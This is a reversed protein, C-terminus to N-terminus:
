AHDNKAWRHGSLFHRSTWVLGANLALSLLGIFLVYAFMRGPQMAQLESIVAYGLGHPNAIMEAIIAMILSLGMSLRCGTVIAPAAAPIIIKLLTQSRTLRLTRSVDYLRSAVSTVGGMTNILVPWVSAYIILVLETTLSFNFLLLALPLFAIAPLPRLVDFSALSWNRAFSSLGLLLGIGVGIATAVTWGILISRLTHLTQIAMEGSAILTRWSSLIVSPPPLYEFTVAGSRVVLEWLAALALITLTGPINLKIAM